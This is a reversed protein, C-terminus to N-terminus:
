LLHELYRDVPSVALPIAVLKAAQRLYDTVLAQLAAHGDQELEREVVYARGHGDAPVDVVRVKGDIRQGYLIRQGDAPTNYRGLEYREGVTPRTAAATTTDITNTSM